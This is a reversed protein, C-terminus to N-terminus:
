VGYEAAVSGTTRCERLYKLTIYLKDEPTLKPYGGGGGNKHLVDFEKQLILLMKHFAGPKVGYLRKFFADKADM